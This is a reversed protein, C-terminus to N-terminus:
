TRYEKEPIAPFFTIARRWNEKSGNHAVREAAAERALNYETQDEAYSDPLRVIGSYVALSGDGGQTLVALFGVGAGDLDPYGVHYTNLVRM